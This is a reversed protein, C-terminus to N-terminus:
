SVEQARIFLYLQIMTAGSLTPRYPLMKKPPSATCVTHVSSACSPDDSGTTAEVTSISDTFPLSSIETASDFDDNSPTTQAFVGTTLTAPAIVVLTIAITTAGLNVKSIKEELRM